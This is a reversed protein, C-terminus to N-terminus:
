VTYIVFKIASYDKRGTGWISILMYMPILEVEWFLFFLLLDLSLFVGLVGTELVLLWAFYEKVRLEIKWSVLVAFFGIFVTLLVMPLNIGDVGLHYSANLASIWSVNEEFQFGAARSFNAALYIALIFPVLTFFAAVRKITVSRSSPWLAVVAAGLAPLFLILSLIPFDM